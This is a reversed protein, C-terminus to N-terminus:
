TAALLVQHVKKAWAGLREDETLGHVEDILETLKNNHVVNLANRRHQYARLRNLSINKFSGEIQRTPATLIWRLDEIMLSLKSSEAQADAETGSIVKRNWPCVTQCIDCGFYHTGLDSAGNKLHTQDVEIAKAEITWYSICKRADLERPAAIAGTPCADICRTCTGCRDPALDVSAELALTTYIEGILFFSGRKEDILCTNKGVWGLGARYALDRELVPKSDTMCMFSEGPFEIQLQAAAKSLRDLLWFHYDQGRAYRAVNLRELRGQTEEDAPAPHPVYDVAVVLASRAQPLLKDPQEKMPGHTVLYEMSAHHGKKLWEEYFSFSMPRELAAIGFRDFGVSTLSHALKDKLSQPLPM